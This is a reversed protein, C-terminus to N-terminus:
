GQWVGAGWVYWGSAKWGVDERPTAIGVWRLAKKPVKELKYGGVAVTGTHLCPSAFYATVLAGLPCFLSASTYDKWLAQNKNGQPQPIHPILFELCAFHKSTQSPRPHGDLQTTHAGQLIVATMSTPAWHKNLSVRNISMCPQTRLKGM